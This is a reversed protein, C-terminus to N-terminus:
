SRFNVEFTYMGMGCMGRLVGAQPSGLDVDTTGSPPLFKSFGISPIRVSSSCDYTGNTSLRVITPVGAKAVSKQPRYGGKVSIEVVQKGDVINVNNAPGDVAGSSGFGSYLIAGGILTGAFVISFATSKM